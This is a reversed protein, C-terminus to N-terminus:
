LAPQGLYVRADAVWRPGHNRPGTPVVRSPDFIVRHNYEGKGNAPVAPADTSFPGTPSTSAGCYFSGAFNRIQDPRVGGVGLSDSFGVQEPTMGALDPLRLTDAQKDWVFRNVGGIGNWGVKTGDANTHWVAVHLADYQAQTVLRKKGYSTEFYAAAKPYKASFNQVVGGLCSFLGARPMEDEFWHYQGIDYREFSPPTISAAYDLWYLESGAAGPVKPGVGAVNPGSPLLCLYVKGDPGFKLAPATYKQKNNWVAEGGLNRIAQLLQANNGKDLALGAAFIPAALEEQVANLWNDTVTTAPVPITPDGETFKNDPTADPSDIRHM